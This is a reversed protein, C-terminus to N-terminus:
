RTQLKDKIVGIKERQVNNIYRSIIEEESHKLKFFSCGYGELIDNNKQVRLIETLIDVEKGLVKFSVVILDKKDFEYNCELFIGGINMNKIKGYVPQEFVTDVDDRTLIAISANLDTELKYFRRREELMTSESGITVNVQFSTCVDIRTDYKVRDGNIYYFVVEVQTGKEIEKINSGKIMVTYMAHGSTVDSINFDESSIILGRNFSYVEVKIIRKKELM